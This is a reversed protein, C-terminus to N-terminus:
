VISALTLAQEFNLRSGAAYQQFVPETERKFQEHMLHAVQEAEMGSSFFYTTPFLHGELHNAKVYEEFPKAQAVGAAELREAIQKASFGEPIVVKVLEARGYTLRWLVEPSSMLKRLRFTGPKLQRDMRTIKALIRFATPSGIIGEEALIRATERATIKAPLVVSVPEGVRFLWYSLGILSIAFVALLKKFM